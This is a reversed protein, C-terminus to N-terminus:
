SVKGCGPPGWMIMSPINQQELLNRFVTNSALIHQQGVFDQLSTPRMREALPIKTNELEKKEQNQLSFFDICLNRVLKPEYLM